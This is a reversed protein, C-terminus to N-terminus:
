LLFSATLCTMLCGLTCVRRLTCVQHVANMIMVGNEWIIWLVSGGYVRTTLNNDVVLMSSACHRERSRYSFSKGSLTTLLNHAFFYSFLCWKYDRPCCCWGKKVGIRRRAWKMMWWSGHVEVGVRLRRWPEPRSGVLLLWWKCEFVGEYQLGEQLGLKEIGYEPM